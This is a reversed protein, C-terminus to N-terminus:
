KARAFYDLVRVARISFAIGAIKSPLPNKSRRYITLQPHREHLPRRQRASTVRIAAPVRLYRNDRAGGRRMPRRRAMLENRAERPHRATLRHSRVDLRCATQVGSM